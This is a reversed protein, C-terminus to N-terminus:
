EDLRAADEGYQSPHRYRRSVSNNSHGMYIDARTESVGAADLFTSFSHRCEHLTIRDLGADRWAAWARFRLRRSAFHWALAHFTPRPWM